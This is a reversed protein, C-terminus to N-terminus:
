KQVLINEASKMGGARLTQELMCWFCMGIKIAAVNQGGFNSNM